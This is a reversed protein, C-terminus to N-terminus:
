NKARMAEYVKRNEESPIIIFIFISLLSFGALLVAVKRYGIRDGLFGAIIQFVIISLAMFVNFVANVKARMNSPLYSQVSTERLTASTMGLFGCLFRNVMMFPYPIFLLIIDMIEYFIYVFKTIGYRKKPTIDVKYQVVGGIIRGVTEASRLFALMTVTLFSVTQFYAQIMLQLGNAAGNTISMYTYINRIGKEEKLFSFGGILDAKYQKFDFENDVQANHINTIFTEFTAALITLIGIIVFLTSITFTKYLYAAVPSMIIMITPYISSSVAYGQQEFGIPILDPFWAQYALQYITGIIGTILSFGLYLFYKFGTISVIYAIILYLFGMLYDLGVIIKKKPYRDIFPAILIPLIVSPIMGVIFLFASLLTSGTEDFVMLSMPLSITQGGIASIITGVTILTFDKSWVNERKMIGVGKFIIERQISQVM